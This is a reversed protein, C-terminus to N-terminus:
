KIKWKNLHTALFGYLPSASKSENEIKPKGDDPIKM